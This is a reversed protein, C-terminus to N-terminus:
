NPSSILSDAKSGVFDDISPFLTMLKLSYETSNNATVMGSGSFARTQSASEVLVYVTYPFFIYMCNM